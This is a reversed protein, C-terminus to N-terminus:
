NNWLSVLLTNLPSPSTVLNPPPSDYLGTVDRGREGGRISEKRLPLSRSLEGRLSRTRVGGVSLQCGLLSRDGRRLDLVGGRLSREGALSLQRALGLDGIRSRVGGLLNEGRLSSSRLALDGALRSSLHTIKLSM